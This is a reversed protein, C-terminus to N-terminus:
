LEKELIAIDTESTAHACIWVIDSLATIRHHIGAKIEIVAPAVYTEIHGNTEVAASGSSLISLHDYAHAHTDVGHGAALTQERMYIGASFHHKIM